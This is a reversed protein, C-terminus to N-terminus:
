ANDPFRIGLQDMLGPLTIGRLRALEALAEIREAHLQEVRDSLTLLEEGEADTLSGDNRKEELDTLRSKLAAPLGQNVRSLLKSEEADLHPARRSARPAIVRPVLNELEAASLQEMASLIQDTSLNRAM